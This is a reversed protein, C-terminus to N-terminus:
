RTRRPRRARRAGRQLVLGLELRGAGRRRLRPDPRLLQVPDPFDAIWAMGGSWIMPAEGDEGGAAIVNAQALSKLEAKIGIAALDQQIAQAIRPNPDTNMAYLETEFGDALGAEALLQRPRRRSRLCLGSLGQRLGADGAAAAPEGAGRPQQHHPRHAGQQDGHQGGPAGARQRVAAINVNMTVYGTHLQGGEVIATARMAPDDMVELFKRRRSATAWRHRGRRQQLRLLAM